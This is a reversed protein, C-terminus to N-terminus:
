RHTVAHYMTKQKDNQQGRVLRVYPNVIFGGELLKASLKKWFLIATMLATGYMAKKLDVYLVQKGKEIQISYKQYRKPDLKVLLEAMEGQLKMHVLKDM